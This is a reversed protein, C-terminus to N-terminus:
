ASAWEQVKRILELVTEHAAYVLGTDLYNNAQELDELIELM